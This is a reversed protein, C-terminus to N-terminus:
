SSHMKLAGQTGHAWTQEEDGESEQVRNRCGRAAVERWCLTSIICIPDGSEGWLWRRVIVLINRKSEKKKKKKSVLDWGSKQGVGVWEGTM